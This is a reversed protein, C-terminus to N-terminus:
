FQSSGDSESRQMIERLTLYQDDTGVKRLLFGNSGDYRVMEGNSMHFWARGTPNDSDPLKVRDAGLTYVINRAELWELLRWEPETELAIESLRRARELGLRTTWRSNSISTAEDRSFPIRKPLSRIPGLRYVVMQGTRRSRWPTGVQSRGMVDIREVDAVYAIGAPQGFGQPVYIAVQKVFFQRRHSSVLPQYYTQKEIIWDLHESGGPARLVGVLVPESAAIQWKRAHVTAVHPIVRDAMSWGGHRTATLLWEELCGLNSPLAPVAGIGLREISQWLRSQRYDEALDENLPFLAAAQVTSRAVGGDTRDKELIADRYRHLVNIADQPPGYAGFQERYQQSADVRYKADCVLQMKPWGPEEIRILIDPKQPILATGRFLPNYVVTVGRGSTEKFTISQQNGRQLRVALGREDVRFLQGLREPPGFERQVTRVVALYTWYEYLENLDKVSLRAFDGELRLGMRLLMLLRYAERYGPASVLQLSAFGAPPSGTAAAIPEVRLLRSVRTELKTLGELSRRSRASLKGDSVYLSAVQSLKRQVDTLQKRLWRHEMTDLTLEAPREVLRERATVGALQVPSGKGHGRRIQSRVRSDPRRIREIRATRDSRVLGRTPRQAIYNVAKELEDVITELLVLWELKSPRANAAVKGMQFTSRLYEYALGTLISQVDALIEQYDSEYDIKTPFVEVEFDLQREGNVYISFQSRGIQGRFNVTGHVVRGGEQSTLARVIAPDRHRIEVTDGSNAGHLYLQYDSQEFLPPGADVQVDAAVSDPVGSRRCQDTLELDRAQPAISLRGVVDQNRTLVAGDHDRVRRWDLTFHNTSICFLRKM